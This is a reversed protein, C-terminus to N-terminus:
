RGSSVFDLAIDLAPTSHTITGVSIRDVGTEAVARVNQLNIGGSAELLTSVGAANRRRVAERLQDLTMNDLVVFDPRERLAAELQELSDVEIELPVGPFKARAQRIATGVPDAIPGLAALHNDKILIMDHLGLRHNQGGGVRFAYKDLLRWGPPTKRTDLLQTSLGALQDVFLRTQTAVGSLRQLFNLAIREAALLSRLPGGIQALEHGAAVRDGDSKLPQFTLRPDIARCTMLAVPLGALIGAKRAVVVAMGRSDPPLLALSTIDGAEGFDERVALAILARAADSEHSGFSVNVHHM